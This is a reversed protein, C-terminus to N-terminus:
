IIAATYKHVIQVITNTHMCNHPIQINGHNWIEPTQSCKLISPAEKKLVSAKCLLDVASEGPVIYTEDFILIYFQGSWM